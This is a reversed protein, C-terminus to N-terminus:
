DNNQDYGYLQKLAKKFNKNTFSFVTEQELLNNKRIMLNINSDIKVSKEVDFLVTFQNLDRRGNAVRESLVPKITDTGLILAFLDASHYNLIYLTSDNIKNPKTNLYVNFKFVNSTSKENVNLEPVLQCVVDNSDVWMKKTLGKEVNGVYAAVNEKKSNPKCKILQLICVLFVAVILSAKFKNNVM